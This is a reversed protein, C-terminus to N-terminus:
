VSGQKWCVPEIEGVLFLWALGGVWLIGALLVFAWLFHGTRQVVLGTVASVVGGSMNGCFLQIGCWRGVAQRGALRQTIVWLNSAGLGFAVGALVLLGVSVAPPAVVTGVLLVGSSMLGAVM